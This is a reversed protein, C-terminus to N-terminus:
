KILTALDDGTGIRYGESLYRIVGDKSMFLVVPLDKMIRGGAPVDAPKLPLSGADRVIMNGPLHSAETQNFPALAERSPVVLLIKGQWRSFEAKKQKLDALLHRTPEKGPDIWAIVLGKETPIGPIERTIRGLGHLAPMAKRLTIDRVVPEGPIIPFFQLGALVKGDPLRTGTVMLMPGAPVGLTCPYQRVLQSGEYDLTRFFGDKYQELTYHISYEPKKENGPYNRLTIEGKLGEDPAKEFIRVDKWVAHQMYQPVRTSPELRAPIGMSRCISVFLIDASHSDTVRLGFAGAPTLPARGYNAANNLTLHSGIWAAVEGPDNRAKERFARDFSDRFLKKGPRLFENDIRPSLVYAFYDKQSCITGDHGPSHLLHDLLVTSDIDRLDKESINALLPFILHKLNQPAQMAFATLTRWNGRSLRLFHWLTDPDLKVLGAFRVAKLSDIFTAEYATRLGDEFALRENNKERDAENVTNNVQAEAPPVLDIDVTLTEGPTRDLVVEITDSIRADLKSFGFKGGRSAWVLLDGLGTTFSCIGNSGAVTRYLPYFEAYNYLQFEVAASDAPTGDAERIRATVRKVRTYNELVNIRTFLPDKVLVDEPGEYDGFVTTNVLMARRAPGTFWALDLDADPECAGIFHWKGDVWVEVWAHNDDCHAWRPTYCQRAPIGVSRLAAVTFTSEEGCRGFATKVTALPSSTRGDTGRYMVKEHCWHNVELVAEKMPLNRIRDKLESFFVMRSSDLNENNVRVPLVFHRFLNEPIKKGWSFTDRASLSARVNALFFDGTYDALDSLPMYAYLFKLAEEESTNLPQSFVGFLQDHRNKALEKQKEFQEEVKNRYGPDSTFHDRHCATFLIVLTSCALLHAALRKM